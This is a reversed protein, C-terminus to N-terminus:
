WMKQTKDLTKSFIKSINKRETSIKEQIALQECVLLCIKVGVALFRCIEFFRDTEKIGIM